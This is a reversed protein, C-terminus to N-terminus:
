RPLSQRSGLAISPPRVFVGKAQIRKAANPEPLRGSVRQQQFLKPYHIGKAPVVIATIKGAKEFNVAISLCFFDPKQGSQSSSINLAPLLNVVIFQDHFTTSQRAVLQRVNTLSLM